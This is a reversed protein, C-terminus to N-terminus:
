EIRLQLYRMIREGEVSHGIFDATHSPPSGAREAANFFRHMPYEAPVRVPEVGPGEPHVRQIFMGADDGSGGQHWIAFLRGDPTAHLNAWSPVARDYVIGDGPADMVETATALIQRGVVRGDRVIALKLQSTLPM